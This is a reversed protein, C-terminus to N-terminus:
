STLFRSPSPGHVSSFCFDDPQEDNDGYKEATDMGWDRGRLLRIPREGDSVVNSHREKSILVPALRVSHAKRRVPAIEGNMRLTAAQVQVTDLIGESKIPAMVDLAKHLM